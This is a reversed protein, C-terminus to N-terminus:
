YGPVGAQHYVEDVRQMEEQEELLGLGRLMHHITMQPDNSWFIGCDEDEYYRYGVKDGYIKKLGEGNELKSSWPLIAYSLDIEQVLVNDEPAILNGAEVKRESAPWKVQAVIKGTPEFVSANNRWTSSVIYYHNRRARAAPQSTQPSQTPWAVLEAGERALETWGDDFDMDYCIQIGLKGFDCQFVPENKGPTCGHELSGTKLDVVLHVKHYTGVVEGTRDFLIAANSCQKTAPDDLLFTPAVIYCHCKRAEQAFTDQVAGELPYAWDAVEGVSAGEGTLAMEPLVALDLGRGYKRESEAQMRDIITTLQDLRKQLGPHKGWFPQMVTGVIVKRPPQDSTSRVSLDAALAPLTLLIGSLFLILKALICTPILRKTTM